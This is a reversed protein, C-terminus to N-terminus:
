LVFVWQLIPRAVAAITILALVFGAHTRLPSKPLLMEAMTTLIGITLVSLIWQVIDM